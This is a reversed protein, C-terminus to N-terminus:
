LIVGHRPGDVGHFLAGLVMLDRDRPGGSSWRPYQAIGMQCFFLMSWFPIKVNSLWSKELTRM